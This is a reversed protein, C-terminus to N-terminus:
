RTVPTTIIAENLTQSCRGTHRLTETRQKDRLRGATYLYTMKKRIVGEQTHEHGEKCGGKAGTNKHTQIETKGFLKSRIVFISMM